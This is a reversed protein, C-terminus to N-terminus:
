DAKGIRFFRLPPDTVPPSFSLSSTTGDATHSSGFPQWDVLNASGELRYSVGAVSSFSLQHETGNSTFRTIRLASQPDLPDTLFVIEALDSMGDGDSDAKGPDTGHLFSEEYDTLGDNDSDPTLVTLETVAGIVPGATNEAVCFWTGGSDPTATFSLDEGTDAKQGNHYWQFTVPEASTVSVPLTVTEGATVTRSPEPSGTFLPLDTSATSQLFAADALFGGHLDTASDTTVREIVLRAYATGAPALTELSYPVPVAPASQDAIVTLDGSIFAGDTNFFQIRMEAEAGTGLGNEPSNAALVGYRVIQGPTARVTQRFGTRNAAVQSDAADDSLYLGSAAFFAYIGYAGGLGIATLLLPFTMTVLFNALWQTLGALSLAAGRLRNPFMEGLLVWMVPGWSLGFGVIYLNASVLAIIGATAGLQLTGDPGVEATGFVGALVTLFCAMLIGGLILLPKRGWKDVLLIAGVTASVNIIGGIVNILLANEPSFGAASWLVEGYYFVVNIGVFQQLAAICVGVWVILHVKRSAKDLLDAFRPRHGVELSAEIDHVIQEAEQQGSVRTLVARAKDTRGTAVLYRPSEPIFLLGIFFVSVPVLEAWFMWQWTQFGFFFQEAAGGAVKALLYNVLFAFFLGLVIAMQQLTALRGRLAPPAIESIYAPCIISAAGVAFGGLLRFFIFEMSGPAIGSGWSSVAFLVAALLLAAKRGFRDAIRGALFAGAACGLLM